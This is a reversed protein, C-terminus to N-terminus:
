LKFRHGIGFELYDAKFGNSTKLAIGAYWNPLFHYKVQLRFFFWGKAQSGKWLYTGAQTLLSVKSIILEHSLHIGLFM